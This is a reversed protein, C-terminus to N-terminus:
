NVHIYSVVLGVSYQHAINPRRKGRSKHLYASGALCLGCPSSPKCVHYAMTQYLPTHTQMLTQMQM